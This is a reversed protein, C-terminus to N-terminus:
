QAVAVGGSTRDMRAGVMYAVLAGVLSIVYPMEWELKDLGVYVVLGVVLAAYAARKGGYQTFMGFMVCVFFGSTGLASASEVLAYIGDASLALVYAVVGFTVVMIRNIRLKRAETLHEGMTPLLVNHAILGSAALLASDVSSLIASVLAGAFVLYLVGPLYKQAELLLVQEAEGGAGLIAPGLLGLVVPILGVALYIGAAGLAAKRAIQPSKAAMVRSALEQSMVSGIIPVAWTEVKLYWAADGGFPNLRAGDVSGWAGLGEPSSLVMVALLVLGAILVGGQLVDSYADALLGGMVTYVVVVSAAVTIALTVGWGATASLVQGFARTQAAAWMLSSPVIMLVALREVGAGYRQKFLDGLTTLKRKWLPVAFFAGMLVICIAYGFPDASNGSLGESHAKGAAGICTEAGFWTAFITFMSMWLGLSRGALLYDEESRIHKSVLVGFGMQLSIYVLIGILMWNM